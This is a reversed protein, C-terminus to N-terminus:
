LPIIRRLARRRAVWPSVPRSALYNDALTSITSMLSPYPLSLDAMKDLTLGREMALALVAAMDAAGPALISAGTIKGDSGSLVKVYGQAEGLAAAADNEALNARLISAGARLKEGSAPVVGIQALVPSTLVLRPQPGPKNRPKGQVPAEVVARGHRLAHQWQDIGAAAGVVRIRRNSTQGLDGSALGRKGRQPALRAIHPDLSDLDAAGGMAVRVHSIDLAQSEGGPLEVAAGIGQSRPHIASVKGEVVAVGEAALLNLLISVAEADFEALLPGQPVLTVASGLRAFVQALAFASPDNGIVLLHSLKRSTELISDPNLAEIQDLGPIDPSISKAGLALITSSARVQTEGVELTQPDTFRPAGRRIDIGLATLHEPGLNPARESVLAGLREQIARFSIKPESAALGVSAAQRQGWARAAAAQLGALRLATQPGDNPEDIGRDIVVVSAGLSRAHRALHLGLAGAGVICIDPRLLEAM